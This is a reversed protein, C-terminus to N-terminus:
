KRLISVHFIPHIMFLNSPLVLRYTIADVSDLIEFPGIYSPSLKGCKGFRMVGKMPSIRLFVHDGVLFELDRRRHDVYAEQRSQAALLQERILQVKDVSEQVLNPGMLKTEDMKFWGISSKTYVHM